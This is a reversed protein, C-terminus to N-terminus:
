SLRGILIGKLRNRGRDEAGPPRFTIRFSAHSKQLVLEPTRRHQSSSPGLPGLPGADADAVARRVDEVGLDAVRALEARCPKPNLTQPKYSLTYPVPKLTIFFFFVPAHLAKRSGPDYVAFEKGDSAPVFVGSIFAGRQM